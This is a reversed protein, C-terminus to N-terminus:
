GADRACAPDLSASPRMQRRRRARLHIHRMAIRDVWNVRGSRTFWQSMTRMSGSVNLLACLDSHFIPCSPGPLGNSISAEPLRTCFLHHSERTSPPMRLLRWCSANASMRNDLTSRATNSLLAPMKGFGPFPLFYGSVESNQWVDIRNGEVRSLPDAAFSEHALQCYIISLGPKLFKM